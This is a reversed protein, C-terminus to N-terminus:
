YLLIIQLWRVLIEGETVDEDNNNDDDDDDDIHDNDVEAGDYMSDIDVAIVVLAVDSSYEQERTSM